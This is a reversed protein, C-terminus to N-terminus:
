GVGAIGKPNEVSLPAASRPRCLVFGKPTKVVLFPFRENRALARISKQNRPSDSWNTLEWNEDSPFQSNLIPSNILNRKM